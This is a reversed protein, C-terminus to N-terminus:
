GAIVHLAQGHTAAHAILDCLDDLFRQLDASGIESRLMRAQEALSPLDDVAAVANEYYDSFDKFRGLLLRPLSSM